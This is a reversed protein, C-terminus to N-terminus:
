QQDRDSALHIWDEDNCEMYELDLKSIRRGFIGPGGLHNRGM